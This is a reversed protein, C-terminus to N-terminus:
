MSAVRTYLNAIYDLRYRVYPTILKNYVTTVQREAYLSPRVQGNYNTYLRSASDVLCNYMSLIFRVM